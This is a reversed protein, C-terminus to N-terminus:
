GFNTKFTLDVLWILVQMMTKMQMLGNAIKPIVKIMVALVEVLVGTMVEVAKMM